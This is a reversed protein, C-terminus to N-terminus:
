KSMYNARSKKMLELYDDVKMQKLGNIFNDYTEDVSETGLVWKQMQERVYTNLDAYYASAAKQDEDSVPLGVFTMDKIYNNDLYMQAGDKAIPDLWQM